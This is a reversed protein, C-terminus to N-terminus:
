RCDNDGGASKAGGADVPKPQVDPGAPKSAEPHSAMGMSADTSLSPTSDGPQPNDGGAVDPVSDGRKPPPEAQNPKAPESSLSAVARRPPVEPRPHTIESNAPACGGSGGDNPADAGAAKPVPAGTVVPANVEPGKACPAAGKPPPGAASSLCPLSGGVKPPACSPGRAAGGRWRNAAERKSLSPCDDSYADKPLEPPDPKAKLLQKGTAPKLDIRHGGTKSPGGTTTPSYGCAQAPKAPITGRQNGCVAPSLGRSAASQGFDAMAQGLRQRGTAPPTSSRVRQAMTQPGNGADPRPASQQGSARAGAAAPAKASSAHSTACPGSSMTRPASIVEAWPADESSSWRDVPTLGARVGCQKAASLYSESPKMLYEHKVLFDLALALAERVEDSM